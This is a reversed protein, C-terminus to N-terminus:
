DARLAAQPDIKCARRAPWFVALFAAGGAVGTTLLYAPLDFLDMALDIKSGLYQLVGVALVVGFVVGIAGLRATSAVM